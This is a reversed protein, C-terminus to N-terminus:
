VAVVLVSPVGVVAVGVIIAGVVMRVVDGGGQLVAEILVYGKVAERREVFGHRMGATSNRLLCPCLPQLILRLQLAISILLQEHM